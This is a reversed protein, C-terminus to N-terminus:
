RSGRSGGNNGGYGRNSPAQMTKQVGNAVQSRGPREPRWAFAMIQTIANNTLEQLYGRLQVAGQDFLALQLSFTVNSGKMEEEIGRSPHFRTVPGTRSVLLRVAEVTAVGKAYPLPDKTEDPKLREM